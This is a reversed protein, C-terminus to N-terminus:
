CIRVHFREAIHRIGVEAPGTHSLATGSNKACSPATISQITGRHRGPQDVEGATPHQDGLDLARGVVVYALLLRQTWDQKSNILLPSKNSSACVVARLHKVM